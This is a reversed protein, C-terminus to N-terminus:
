NFLHSHTQSVRTLNMGKNFFGPDISSTSPRTNNTIISQVIESNVKAMPLKLLDEREMTQEKPRRDSTTQRSMSIRHGPKWWAPLWTQDRFWKTMKRLSFLATKSQTLLLHLYTRSDWLSELQTLLERDLAKNLYVRIQFMESIEELHIGRTIPQSPNFSSRVLHSNLRSGKVERATQHEKIRKALHELDWLLFKLYRSEMKTKLRLNDAM